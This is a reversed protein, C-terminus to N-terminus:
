SEEVIQDRNREQQARHPELIPNTPTTSSEFKSSEVAGTGLLRRHHPILLSAGRKLRHKKIDRTKADAIKGPFTYMVCMKADRM